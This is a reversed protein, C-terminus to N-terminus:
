SWLRAKSGAMLGHYITQELEAFKLFKADIGEEMVVTKIRKIIRKAKAKGAEEQKKKVSKTTIFLFGRVDFGLAEAVKTVFPLNGCENNLVDIVTFEQLRCRKALQTVSIGLEQRRQILNKM